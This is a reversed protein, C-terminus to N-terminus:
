DIMKLGELYIDSGSEDVEDVLGKGKDGVVSSVDEDTRSSSAEEHGIHM